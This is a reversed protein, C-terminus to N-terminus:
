NLSNTSRCKVCVSAQPLLVTAPDFTRELAWNSSAPSSIMDEHRGQGGTSRSLKRVRRHGATRATALTRVPLLGCHGRGGRAGAVAYGSTRAKASACSATSRPASRRHNGIAGVTTPAQRKGEARAQGDVAEVLPTVVRGAEIAARAANFLFRDSSNRRMGRPLCIVACNHTTQDVRKLWPWHLTVGLPLHEM